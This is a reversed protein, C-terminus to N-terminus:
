KIRIEANITGKNKSKVSLGSGGKMQIAEFVVKKKVGSVDIRYIQEGGPKLTAAHTRTDNLYIPLSEKQESDKDYAYMQLKRTENGTSDNIIKVLMDTKGNRIPISSRSVNKKSM